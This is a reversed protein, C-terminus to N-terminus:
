RTVGAVILVDAGDEGNARARAEAEFSAIDALIAARSETELDACLVANTDGSAIAFDVFGASTGVFAAGELRIAETLLPKEAYAGVEGIGVPDARDWDEIAGDTAGSATGADIDATAEETHARATSSAEGIGLTGDNGSAM